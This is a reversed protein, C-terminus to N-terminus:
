DESKTVRESRDGREFNLHRPAAILTDPHKALWARLVVQRQAGSNWVGARVDQMVVDHLIVSARCTELPRTPNQPRVFSLDLCLFFRITRKTRTPIQAINM